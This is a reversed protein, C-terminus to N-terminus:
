RGRSWSSPAPLVRVALSVLAYTAFGMPDTL